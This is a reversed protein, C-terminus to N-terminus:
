TLSINYLSTTMTKHDGLHEYKNIMTEKEININLDRYERYERWHQSKVM